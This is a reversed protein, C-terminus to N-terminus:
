KVAFGHQSTQESIAILVQVVILALHFFFLRHFLSSSRANPCEGLTQRAELLLSDNTQICRLGRRDEEEMWVIIAKHGCITTVDIYPDRLRLLM